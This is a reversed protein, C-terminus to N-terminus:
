EWTSTYEEGEVYGSKCNLFSGYSRGRVDSNNKIVIGNPAQMIDDEATIEITSNDIYIFGKSSDAEETAKIGDDNASVVVNSDVISVSNNGKIGNNLGNVSVAAGYIKLDKKVAIGNNYNGNIILKGNGNITTDMTSFLCGNAADNNHSTADSLENVSNESLTIILKDGFAANIPATTKSSISAGDLVIHIKKDQAINIYFSKDIFEGKIIYTGSEVLSIRNESVIAGQGYVNIENGADSNIGEIRTATDKNYYTLQDYKSLKLVMNGSIGYVIAPPIVIGDEPGILSNSSAADDSSANNSIVATDSSVAEGFSMNYSCGSLVFALITLSIVIKKNSILIKKIKYITEDISM